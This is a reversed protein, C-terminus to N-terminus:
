GTRRGLEFPITGGGNVAQEVTTESVSKEALQDELSKQIQSFIVDFNKEM